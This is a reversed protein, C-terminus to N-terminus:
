HVPPAVQHAAALTQVLRLPSLVLQPAQPLTQGHPVPQLLPAHQLPAPAQVHAAPL